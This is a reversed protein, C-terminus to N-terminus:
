NLKKRCKDCLRLLVNDVTKITEAADTMVCQKNPCHNLGLNHGLEHTCIKKLRDIYKTRETNNFRYVSVICSEGPRYGLGFVGWDEYKSAPKLTKGSRDKKTTSIDKETLALIYDISDPKNDRLIRILKDARYRPTKVNIFTSEIMEKRPLHIVEFGYLSELTASVTDALSRDFNGLQQIGVTKPQEVNSCSNLTIFAAFLWYLSIRSFGMTPAILVRNYVPKQSGKNWM